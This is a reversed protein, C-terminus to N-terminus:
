LEQKRIKNRFFGNAANTNTSKVLNPFDTTYDNIAKPPFTLKTKQFAAIIAISPIAWAVRWFLLDHFLGFVFYIVLSSSLYHYSLGFFNQRCAALKTLRLIALFLITIFSVFAIWGNEAFIQAPTNHAGIPDGDISTIGTVTATRGPGNGFPTELGTEIAAITYIFAFRDQEGSSKQELFTSFRDELKQISGSTYLLPTFLIPATGLIFILRYTNQKTRLKRRSSYLLFVVGTLLSLGAARSQTAALFILLLLLYSITMLNKILPERNFVLKDILWTILLAATLGTFNPDGLAGLFREHRVVDFAWDPSTTNTFHLALFALNLFIFGHLFSSLLELAPLKRNSDAITAYILFFFLGNIFLQLVVNYKIPNIITSIAISAVFTLCLLKFVAQQRWLTYTNPKQFILFISQIFIAIDAPDIGVINIPTLWTAFLVGGTILKIRKM